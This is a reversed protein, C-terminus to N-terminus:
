SSEGFLKACGCVVGDVGEVESEFCGVVFHGKTESDVLFADDYGAVGVEAGEESGVFWSAGDTMKNLPRWWRLASSCAATIRVWKSFM